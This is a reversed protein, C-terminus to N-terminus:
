RENTIGVTQAEIQKYWIGDCPQNNKFSGVFAAGDVDTFRGKQWKDNRMSGKFYSGDRYFMIANTDVREGNVFNGYYYLRQDKDNDRYIAVGVGNPKGNNIPGYYLFEGADYKAVESPFLVKNWVIFGLILAIISLLSVWKMNQQKRRNKTLDSQLQQNSQKLDNILSNLKRLRTAYANMNATDYDKSKYIVTYGNAYCSKFINDADDQISFTHIANSSSQYSVPPLSQYALQNFAYILSHNITDIYEKEAYLNDVSTTIEGNNDYHILCGNCVMREVIMEFTSFLTHPQKFCSGNLVACLGIYYSSELKRIYAYYILDDKRHVAIQTKAKCNNYFIQFVTQTYDTPFQYYGSKFNGFIYTTINM